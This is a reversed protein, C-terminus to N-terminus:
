VNKGVHVKSYTEDLCMTTLRVLKMRIGFEILNNYM